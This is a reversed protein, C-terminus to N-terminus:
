GDMEYSYPQHYDNISDTFKIYRAELDIVFPINELYKILGTQKSEKFQAEEFVRNTNMDAMFCFPDIYKTRFNKQYINSLLSVLYHFMSQPRNDKIRYQNDAFFRNLQKMLFQIINIMIDRPYSIGESIFEFDDM